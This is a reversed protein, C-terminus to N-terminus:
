ESGSDSLASGEIQGQVKKINLLNNVKEYKSFLKGQWEVGGGV